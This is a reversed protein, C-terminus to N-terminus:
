ETSMLGNNKFCDLEENIIYIDSFIRGIKNNHPYEFSKGLQWNEEFCAMSIRHQTVGMGGYNWYFEKRFTKM